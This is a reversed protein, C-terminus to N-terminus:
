NVELFHPPASTGKIPGKWEEASVKVQSFYILDVKQFDCLIGYICDCHLIHSLVPYIQM